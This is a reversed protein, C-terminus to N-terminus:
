IWAVDNFLFLGVFVLSALLLFAFLLVRLCNCNLYFM